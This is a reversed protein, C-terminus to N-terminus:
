MDLFSLVKERNYYTLTNINFQNNVIDKPTHHLEINTTQSTKQKKKFLIFPQKSASLLIQSFNYVLKFHKISFKQTSLIFTSGKKLM